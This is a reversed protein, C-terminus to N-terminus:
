RDVGGGRDCQRFRFEEAVPQVGLQGLSSVCVCGGPLIPTAGQGWEGCGRIGEIQGRILPSGAGAGAAPLRVCPISGMAFLALVPLPTAEDAALTRLLLDAV